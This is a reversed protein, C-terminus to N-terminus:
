AKKDLFVGIWERLNKLTDLMEEPPMQKITEKTEKDVVKLVLRDLDKYYNFEIGYNMEKAFENLNETMENVNEENLKSKQDKNESNTVDSEKTQTSQQVQKVISNTKSVSETGVNSGDSFNASGLNTSVESIGGVGKIM